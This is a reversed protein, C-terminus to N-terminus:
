HRQRSTRHREAHVIKRYWESFKRIANARHSWHNKENIDMEAFTRKSGNPIFIPDFGFGAKGSGWREDQAIEGGTEGVFCVPDSTGDHYAIVSRFTAKRNDVRDMLKLMGPNSITKYVYAAYPGPFGKLVNVFLGADEVILPLHCLRFAEIASAKAIESLSDDQIEITKAKLMASAFGYEKLIMRAENFKHFNGTAFFVPGNEIDPNTKKTTKEGKLM